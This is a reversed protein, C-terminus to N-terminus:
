FYVLLYLIPWIAVVFYWYISSLELSQGSTKLQILSQFIGLALFVAGVLVHLAHLGILTYFTGGFLSSSLTLGFNILKTWEYGQIILFLIGLALGSLGFIMKSKVSRSSSKQVAIYILIGSILLALTNFATIAVPLRPQNLPPWVGLNKSKVVLFSSIFGAFLM